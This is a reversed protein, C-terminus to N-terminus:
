RAAAASTETAGPPPVEARSAPSPKGEPKASPSPSPGSSPQPSPEPTAAGFSTPAKLFPWPMEEPQVGVQPQWAGGDESWEMGEEPVARMPYVNWRQRGDDATAPRFYWTGEVDPVTWAQEDGDTTVTRVPRGRDDFLQVDKIPDGNADYAFLNSVQMGDVWVGDDGPVGSGDDYGVTLADDRGAAYGQDYGGASSSTGYVYEDHTASAVAPVMLVAAATAAVTLRPAWRRPLWRGRGWQVSVLACAGMVLLEGTREPVLSPRGDTDWTFWAVLLAGVIWGRAVWWFPRVDRGLGRLRDWQPTSTVPHWARRWREVLLIRRAGLSPRAGRRAVGPLAAPLGAAGRLEAAYDSAPGFHAVLDLAVDDDAGGSSARAAAFPATAETFAEALDAELGDTLEDVVEPGLDALRLRVAQAYGLAHADLVAGLAPATGTTTTGTSDATTM